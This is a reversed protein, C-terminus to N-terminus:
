ATACGASELGGALSKVEEFGTAELAARFEAVTQAGGLRTMADPGGDAQYAAFLKAWNADNRTGGPFTCATILDHRSRWETIRAQTTQAIEAAKPDIRGDDGRAMLATAAGSQVAITGVALRQYIANGVSTAGASDGGYKLEMLVNATDQAGDYGAATVATESSPRNTPVFAFEARKYGLNFYPANTAQNTGIDVGISTGTAAIVSYGQEACGSLAAAALLAAAGGIRKM